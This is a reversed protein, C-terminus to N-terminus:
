PWWWSPRPASATIEQVTKELNRIHKAQSEVLKELDTVQDKYSKLLAGASEAEIDVIKKPKPKPEGGLLVIKTLFIFTKFDDSQKQLQTKLQFIEADKDLNEDFGFEM